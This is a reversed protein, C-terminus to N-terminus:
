TRGAVLAIDGTPLCGYYWIATMLRVPVCASRWMWVRGVLDVQRNTAELQLNIRIACWLARWCRALMCMCCRSLVPSSQRYRATGGAAAVAEEAAEAEVMMAKCHQYFTQGVETVTFQRTTRQILRM